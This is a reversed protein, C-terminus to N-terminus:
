LPSTSILIFATMLTHRSDLARSQCYKIKKQQTAKYM